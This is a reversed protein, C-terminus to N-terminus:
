GREAEHQRLISTAELLATTPTGALTLTVNTDDTKTLAEGTISHAADWAPGDVLATSDTPAGTVTSHTINATM